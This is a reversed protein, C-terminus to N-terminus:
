KQQQKGATAQQFKNSINLNPDVVGNFLECVMGPITAYPASAASIKGKAEVILTSINYNGAPNGCTSGSSFFSVNGFTDITNVGCITGSINFINSSYVTLLSPLYAESNTALILSTNVWYAESSVLTYGSRLYITGTNDGTINKLTVYINSFNLSCVFIIYIIFCYFYSFNFVPILSVTPSATAVAGGVEFNLSGRKTMQVEDIEILPSDNETIWAVTGFTSTFNDVQEATPPNLTIQAANNIRLTSYSHVLDFLYITGPGAIFEDSSYGGYTSITGTFSLTRYYIAIRGGGGGGSTFGLGPFNNQGNGGNASIKATGTLVTAYIVISGGAGGAPGSEIASIGDAIINGSVTLTGSVNIYLV